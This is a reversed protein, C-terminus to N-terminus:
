KSSVVEALTKRSVKAELWSLFDLYTASRQLYIDGFMRDFKKQYSKFVSTQELIPTKSLQELCKLIEIQAIDEKATKNFHPKMSRCLYNLTDYNSLEFHCILFLLRAYNQIDQRLNKIDKNVIHMLYDISKSPQENGLYIWAIKYYFVLKRHEDMKSGYRKLRKLTRPIIEVGKGYDGHLIISNLRGMHVYLFATIQSNHNFKKYESSRFTEFENQFKDLVKKDGLQFAATLVYHYGRMFLDIDRWQMESEAKLLNVWEIAWKLCSKFDLLIYHYWVYSQCLFVREMVGLGDQPLDKIAKKFFSVLEKKEAANKVHGYRVYKGHLRLRLNSLRVAKSVTNNMEEAESILEKDRNLKSRTIHRSEIVKEFEVITLSLYNLHHKAAMRKGMGLLKLSQLYLGKGYLIYAFDLYERVQINARRQKHILRLSTVIQTYLHRKLNSFQTKNLDNMDALLKDEDLTKQKDMLEFLRSFLKSDNSQLRNVYLNFNRKEAKSLSKVLDFVEESKSIPM